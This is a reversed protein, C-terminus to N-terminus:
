EHAKGKASKLIAELSVGAWKIPAKLILRRVETEPFGQRFLERAVAYVKMNRSGCHIEGDNIFRLCWFPIKGTVPGPDFVNPENLDVASCQVVDWKFDSERDIYIIKQSPFFFRAGDLCSKDAWPFRELAKRYTARYTKYDVICESFPIILRFRDCIVGNKEIGHSKTTAIIRKHDRLSHNIEEMTEDGPEDFDLVLFHSQIFNDTKAYNNKWIIPSWCCSLIKENLMSMNSLVSFGARYLHSDYGSFKKYSIM